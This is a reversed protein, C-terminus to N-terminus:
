QDLLSETLGLYLYLDRVYDRIKGLEAKRLLHHYVRPWCIYLLLLVCLVYRDDTEKLDAM